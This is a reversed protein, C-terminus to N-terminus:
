SSVHGASCGDFLVSPASGVHDASIEGHAFREIADTLVPSANFGKIKNNEAIAEFSESSAHCIGFLGSEHGASRDDSLLPSACGVHEDRTKGHGVCEIVDSLVPSTNFGKIKDDQTTVDSSEPSEHWGGLLVSERGDSCDDALVSPPCGVLDVSM